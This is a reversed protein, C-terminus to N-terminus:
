KVSVINQTKKLVIIKIELVDSQKKQLDIRNELREKLESIMKLCQFSQVSLVKLKELHSEVM